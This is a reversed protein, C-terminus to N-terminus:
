IFLLVTVNLFVIYRYGRPTVAVRWGRSVVGVGGGGGGMKGRFLPVVKCSESSRVSNTPFVIFWFTLWPVKLRFVLFICFM